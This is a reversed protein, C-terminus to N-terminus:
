PKKVPFLFLTTITKEENNNSSINYIEIVPGDMQYKKDTMYEQLKGYVKMPGLAPSGDFNAFVFYRSPIEETKFDPPLSSKLVEELQLNKELVCGGRSKLREHEVVYPDDFYEGFTKHCDLKNKEAWAEVEKITQIIKHYPGTYDKYVFFYPGMQGEQVTVSKWAGSRIFIFVFISVVLLFFGLLIHRMSNEGNLLAAWPQFKIKRHQNM